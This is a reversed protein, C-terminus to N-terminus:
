RAFGHITQSRFTGLFPINYPYTFRVELMITKAHSDKVPEYELVFGEGAAAQVCSDAVAESLNSNEMEAIYAEYSRNANAAQMNASIIGTMIAVTLLLLFLGLFVKPINSM